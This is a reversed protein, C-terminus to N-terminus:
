PCATSAGECADDWLCYGNYCGFLPCSGPDTASCSFASPCNGSAPCPTEGTVGGVVGGHAGCLGHLVTCTQQTWCAGGNCTQGEAETTGDVCTCTVNPCAGASGCPAGSDGSDTGGNKSSCAPSAAISLSVLLTALTSRNM